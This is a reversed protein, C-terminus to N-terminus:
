DYLVLLTCWQRPALRATAHSRQHFHFMNVRVHCYSTKLTVVSYSATSSAEAALVQSALERIKATIPTTFGLCATRHSVILLAIM